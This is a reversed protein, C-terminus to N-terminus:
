GKALIVGKRADDFWRDIAAHVNARLKSKWSDITADLADSNSAVFKDRNFEEQAENIFYDAAIGVVLGAVAGVVQGGAPQVATGAVAGQQALALRTGASAIFRRSLMGVTRAMVRNMVPGLVLAGVTGSGAAVGLGAIGDFARDEMLYTPAKWKQADWDLQSSTLNGNAPVDALHRTHKALFLQLRMDGNAIVRRYSEHSRRVLIELGETIKGDRVDPRLVQEKYHRMFYDKLDREVAEGLSEYEGAEVFRAAASTVSEKLVIYSRKWEFFWDAYAEVVQDRDAFASEFLRDIDADAARKIRDREDDLMLITENVFTDTESKSAAVRRINGEVDRIVLDVADEPLQPTVFIEFISRDPHTAATHDQHRQYSRWFTTGLSALGYAALMLAVTLGIPRVFAAVPGLKQVKM